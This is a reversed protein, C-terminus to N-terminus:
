MWKWFAHNEDESAGKLKATGGADSTEFFDKTSAQSMLMQTVGARDLERYANTYSEKDGKWTEDVTPCSCSCSAAAALAEPSKAGSLASFSSALRTFGYNM